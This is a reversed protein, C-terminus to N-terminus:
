SGRNTSFYCGYINFIFVETVINNTVVRCRYMNKRLYLACFKTHLQYPLISFQRGNWEEFRGNWEIRADEMNWVLIETGNWKRNWEM